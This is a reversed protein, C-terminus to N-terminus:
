DKLEFEAELTNQSDGGVFVKITGPETTWEWDRNYFALDEPTLTFEVTKEEGPKLGIKKFGKLEKVPRTVSAELDRVYFQVVEEGEMDGTNKLNVSVQLDVQL